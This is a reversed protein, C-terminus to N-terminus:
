YKEGVIVFMKDMMLDKRENCRIIKLVSLLAKDKRNRQDYRSSLLFKDPFFVKFHNVKMKMESTVISKQFNLRELDDM